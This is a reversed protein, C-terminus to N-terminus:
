GLAPTIRSREGLQVHKTTQLFRSPWAPFGRTHFQVTTILFKDGQREAMQAQFPRCHDQSARCPPHLVHLFPRIGVAPQRCQRTRLCVPGAARRAVPAASQKTLLVAFLPSMKWSRFFILGQFAEETLSVTSFATM